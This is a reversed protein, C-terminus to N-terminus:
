ERSAIQRRELAHGPPHQHQAAAADHARAGQGRKEGLSHELDKEVARRGLRRGSEPDGGCPELCRERAARGFGRQRQASGM